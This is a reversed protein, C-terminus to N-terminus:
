RSNALQWLAWAAVSRYPRWITARSELVKPTPRDQLKDLVALGKQVGLDGSPMVDLRGLRFLLFMQATWRGVGRVKVLSNIVEEDSLRWLGSLKLDGSLIQKSLDKLSLAKANSVGAERLKDLSLRVIDEASPFLEGDALLCVRCYISQAAKGALQQYLISKSLYRFYSQRRHNPSPFFPYPATDELAKGLLPDQKSLERHIDILRYRQPSM